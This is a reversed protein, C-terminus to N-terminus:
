GLGWPREGWYYYQPSPGNRRITPGNGRGEINSNPPVAGPGNGRPREGHVFKITWATHCINYESFKKILYANYKTSNFLTSFEPLISVTYHNTSKPLFLFFFTDYM